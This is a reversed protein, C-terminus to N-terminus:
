QSTQLNCWWNSLVSWYSWRYRNICVTSCIGEALTMAAFGAVVGGVILKKFNM